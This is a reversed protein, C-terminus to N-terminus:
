KVDYTLHLLITASLLLVAFFMSPSRPKDRAFRSNIMRGRKPDLKYSIKAKYALNYADYSISAFM